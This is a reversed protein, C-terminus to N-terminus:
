FMKGDQPNSVVVSRTTVQIGARGKGKGDDEDEEEQYGEGAFRVVKCPAAAPAAARGSVWSSRLDDPGAGISVVSSGIFSPASIIPSVPGGDDHAGRGPFPSPGFRHPLLAAHVSRWDKITTPLTTTAEGARLRSLLRNAGDALAAAAAAAQESSKRADTDSRLNDDKANNKKAAAAAAAANSRGRKARPTPSEDLSFRSSLHQSTTAAEPALPPPAAAAATDVHAAQNAASGPGLTATEPAVAPPPPSVEVAERWPFWFTRLTQLEVDGGAQARAARRELRCAWLGVALFTLPVLALLVYLPIFNAEPIPLLPAPHPLAATSSAEAQATLTRPVQREPALYNTVVPM